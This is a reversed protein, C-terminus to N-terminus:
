YTVQAVVTDQYVGAAVNTSAATVRGFVSVSQAAGTGTGSATDTGATSGFLQTRSADRYLGYPVFASGSTMRRNTASVTAGSANLGNNLGLVWPTGTTCTVSLTSGADAGASRDVQGFAVDAAAVNLTCTERIEISVLFTDDVTAAQASGAFAALALALLSLKKM